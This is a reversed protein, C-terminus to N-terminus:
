VNKIQNYFYSYKQISFDNKLFWDKVFLLLSTSLTYNLRYSYNDKCSWKWISDDIPNYEFYYDSLDTDKYESFPWDMLSLVEDCYDWWIKFLDDLIDENPNDEWKNIYPYCIYNKYSDWGIMTNCYISLLAVTNKDISWLNRENWKVFFIDIYKKTNQDIKTKYLDKTHKEITKNWKWINCEFCSTILNEIDDRWWQSKPIIHDVQLQVWNWWKLWCYKCEFNDRNLIQFRKKAGIPM